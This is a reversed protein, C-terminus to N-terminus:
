IPNIRTLNGLSLVSDTGCLPGGWAVRHLHGRGRKWPIPFILTVIAARYNCFYRKRTYQQTM